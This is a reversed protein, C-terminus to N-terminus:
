RLAEADSPRAEAWAAVADGTLRCARGALARAAHRPRLPWLVLGALAILVTGAAWGIMREALADPEPATAAYLFAIVVPFFLPVGVVTVRLAHRLIVDDPDAASRLV